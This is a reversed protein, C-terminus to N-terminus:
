LHFFVGAIVTPLVRTAGDVTSGGPLITARLELRLAASNLGRATDDKLPYRLGGGLYWSKGNQVLAHGDHLQRLYGIGGSVFPAAHGRQWRALHAAVGGQFLYLTVPESVTASPAELDSTISTSLHTRGFAVAGEADITSTLGVFVKAEPCAAQELKASTRFVARTAGGFATENANVDSFTVGTLWLVDGGLETRHGSSQQASAMVPRLSVLLVLLFRSSRSVFRTM